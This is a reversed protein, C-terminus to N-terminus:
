LNYYSVLITFIYILIVPLNISVLTIIMIKLGDPGLMVKGNCYFENLGSWYKYNRILHKDDYKDNKM